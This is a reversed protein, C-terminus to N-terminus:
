IIKNNEIFSNFRRLFVFTQQLDFQFSKRNIIDLFKLYGNKM